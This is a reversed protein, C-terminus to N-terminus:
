RCAGCQLNAVPSRCSPRVCCHGTSPSPSGDLRPGNSRMRPVVRPIPWVSDTIAVRSSCTGSPGHFAWTVMRLPRSFRVACALRVNGVPGPIASGTWTMLSSGVAARSVTAAIRRTTAASPAVAAWWMRARRGFGELVARCVGAALWRPFRYAHLPCCAALVVEHQPQDYLCQQMLGEGTRQAPLNATSVTTTTWQLADLAAM